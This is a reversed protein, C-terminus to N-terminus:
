PSFGRLGDALAFAEERPKRERHCFVLMSVGSEKCICMLIQTFGLFLIVWLYPRKNYSWLIIKTPWRIYRISYAISLQPELEHYTNSKSVIDSNGDTPCLEGASTM